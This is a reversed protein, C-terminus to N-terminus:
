NDFEAVQKRLSSTNIGLAEAQDLGRQAANRATMQEDPRATGGQMTQKYLEVARTAISLVSERDTDPRPTILRHDPQM